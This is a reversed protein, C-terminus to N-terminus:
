DKYRYLIRISLLLVAVILAGIQGLDIQFLASCQAEGPNIHWPKLIFAISCGAVLLEECMWWLAVLLVATSRIHWVAAGLLSVRAVAGAANWVQAQHEPQFLSWGYHLSAGLALLAVAASAGYVAHHNDSRHAV